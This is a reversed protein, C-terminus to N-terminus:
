PKDDRHEVQNSCLHEERLRQYLKVWGIGIEIERQIVGQKERWVRVTEMSLKEFAPHNNHLGEIGLNIASTQHACNRLFNDWHRIKSEISQLQASKGFENYVPSPLAEYGLYDNSTRRNLQEKSTRLPPLLISASSSTSKEGKINQVKNRQEPHRDRQDSIDMFIWM